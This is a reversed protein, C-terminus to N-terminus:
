WNDQSELFQKLIIAENNVVCFRGNPEEILSQQNNYKDKPIWKQTKKFTKQFIM